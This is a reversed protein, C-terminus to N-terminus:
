IANLLYEILEWSKYKYKSLFENFDESAEQDSSDSIIRIVIWDVKEQHAVQAFAAGEMEVALLKPIERSLDRLKESDSVFMDGTAILGKYLSGFLKQRNSNLGNELASYFKNVIRKKAYIKEKKIAPVVYKGFIPTADMDHQMVSESIIIDWQKLRSDVAGAVGTFIILDVKKNKFDNSILRTTARAASVKGWGSWAVSILFKINKSNSWEGSYIKLDGFKNTEVKKLNNLIFGLEEPM